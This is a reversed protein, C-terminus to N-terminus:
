DEARVINNREIKNLLMIIIRSIIGYITTSIIGYMHTHTEKTFTCIRTYLVWNNINIQQM